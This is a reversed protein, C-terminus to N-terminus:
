GVFNPREVVRFNGEAFTIEYLEAPPVALYWFVEHSGPSAAKVEVEV